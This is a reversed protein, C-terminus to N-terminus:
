KEKARNRVISCHDSNICLWFGLGFRIDNVYVSFGDFKRYRHVYLVIIYNYHIIIYHITICVINRELQFIYSSIM